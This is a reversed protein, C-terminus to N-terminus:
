NGGRAAEGHGAGGGGKGEETTRAGETREKESLSARQDGGSGRNSTWKPENSRAGAASCVSLCSGRDNHPDRPSGGPTLTLPRSQARVFPIRPQATRHDLTPPRVITHQTPRHARRVASAKMGVARGRAVREAREVQAGVPRLIDILVWTCLNGSELLQM